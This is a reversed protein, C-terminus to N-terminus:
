QYGCALLYKAGVEFAKRGPVSFEFSDALRNITNFAFAVAFADEIQQASAGAALVVHVDDTAVTQESTLKGLLRLVARLPEEIPASEPDALVAAVKREDGYARAAVATHAKICFDCGNVQSVVAAMLEREAVTWASPGRMAEHTVAKMHAGFYDSRYSLLKIVEPTPQRTVLRIFAFLAKTGLDHGTDLIALRM